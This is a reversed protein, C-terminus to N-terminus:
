DSRSCRRQHVGHVHFIIALATAAFPLTRFINEEQDIERAYSAAVIKELYEDGEMQPTRPRLRLAIGGSARDAARPLEEASRGQRHRRAPRGRAARRAVLARVEVLRDLDIGTDFGMAELMFVLDEIVINGTAGPAYPCGGFGGLSADFSRAGANLAALVNALGLGRTDHFHGAVPLPAVDAIVQRFVREIAAPQGYGVTDALMIADAGAEAVENAIRRVRDEDVAGEITCGFATALGCTSAAAAQGRARCPLAGRRPPFGRGIGRDGRRVNARNHGESVSLVFNMEHVGLALGREAGQLNPILASVTLGPLTLAHRVVAEADALQPLLKPPVFSSVEIERVGAAHEADLWAIKQETPMIEAISQLGDRMGVERVFARERM